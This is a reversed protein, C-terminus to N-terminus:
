TEGIIQISLAQLFNGDPLTPDSRPDHLTLFTGKGPCKGQMNKYEKRQLSNM